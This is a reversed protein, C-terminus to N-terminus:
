DAAEELLPKLAPQQLADAGGPTELVQDLAQRLRKGKLVQALSQDPITRFFGTAPVQGSQIFIRLAENKLELFDSPCEECHQFWDYWTKLGLTNVSDDIYPKWETEFSTAWLLRTGVDFVVHRMDHLGFMLLYKEPAGLLRQHFRGCAAVLEETHGPKIHFFASVESILGHRIGKGSKGTYEFTATTM